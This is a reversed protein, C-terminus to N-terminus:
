ECIIPDSRRECCQAELGDATREAAIIIGGSGAFPDLVVDLRRFTDKIADAILRWRNSPPHM